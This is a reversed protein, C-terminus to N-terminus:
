NKILKQSAIKTKSSNLLTFSYIGKGMSAPLQIKETETGSLEGSYSVEGLINTIIFSYTSNKKQYINLTLENMVPNPGISFAKISETKETVGTTITSSSATFEWWDNRPNLSADFGTGAYAKGNSSVAVQGAIIGGPFSGATVWSDTITNYRRYSTPATFTALDLGGMLYLDNGILFLGPDAVPYGAGISKPTWVDTVPDYEYFDTFSANQNADAGFGLYGKTGASCGAAFTRTSGPVNAKQTWSDTAPDYEYFDNYAINFSSNPGVFFKQGTGIYGKSGISFGVAEERTDGPMFAKQTWTDTTQDYEWLDNYYFNTNSGLGLYAKTGITFTSSGARFGGPFNAKQTWVDTTIDYEWFDQLQFNDTGGFLYVKNGLSFAASAARATGGFNTKQIWQAKIPPWGFFTFIGFLILTSIKKM